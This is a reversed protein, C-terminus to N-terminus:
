SRALQRLARKKIPFAIINEGGLESKQEPEQPRNQPRLNLSQLEIEAMDRHHDAQISLIDCLIAATSHDEELEGMTAELLDRLAEFDEPIHILIAKIEDDNLRHPEKEHAILLPGYENIIQDTELTLAKSISLHETDRAIHRACMAICLLATDPCLEFLIENMAHEAVDDLPEEDRLMQDVVMPVVFKAHLRALDHDSLPELM